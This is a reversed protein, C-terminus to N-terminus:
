RENKLDEALAESKRMGLWSSLLLWFTGLATIGFAATVFNDHNM